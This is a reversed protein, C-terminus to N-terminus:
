CYNFDRCSNSFQLLLLIPLAFLLFLHRPSGDYSPSRHTPVPQRRDLFYIRWNPSTNYIFQTVSFGETACYINYWWVTTNTGLTNMNSWTELKNTTFPRLIAPRESSVAFVSTRHWLPHPVILIGRQEFTMQTPQYEQASPVTVIQQWFRPRERCLNSCAVRRLLFSRKFASVVERVPADLEDLMLGICSFLLHKHVTIKLLYLGKTKWKWHTKLIFSLVSKKQM